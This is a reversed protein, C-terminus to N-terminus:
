TTTTAPKVQTVASYSYQQGDITVYVNSSDSQVSEVVGSVSGSSTTVTVERGIMNSAGQLQADTRLYGLQTAMTTMSQLSSFQAMQAIQDTDSMPNMPDQNSMQVTLLKLFDSQGLTKQTVRSSTDDVYTSTTSSTAAVSSM